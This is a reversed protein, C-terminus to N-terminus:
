TASAKTAHSVRWGSVAAVLVLVYALAGLLLYWPRDRLLWQFRSPFSVTNAGIAIQEVPGSITFAVGSDTLRLKDVVAQRLGSLGLPTAELVTDRGDFRVKASLVTSEPLPGADNYGRRILQLSDVTLRPMRLVASQLLQLEIRLVADSTVLGLTSGDDYDHVEPEEGFRSLTIRNVLGTYFTKGGGTNLWVVYEGRGADRPHDLAVQSGKPLTWSQLSIWSDDDAVASVQAEQDPGPREPFASGPPILHRFDSASFSRLRPLDSFLERESALTFRAGSAEIDSSVFASSVPTAMLFGLLPVPALMWSYIARKQWRRRALAKELRRDLDPGLYEMGPIEAHSGASASPVQFLAGDRSRMHLVPIWWEISDSQELKMAVRASTVAADLPLGNALGLYLVRALTIAAADGIPSQMAVVGGMGAGVLADATSSAASTSGVAGKCSNLVALTVDGEERLLLALDEATLPDPGGNADELLIYGGGAAPDYDGHGIFHFAHWGGKMEAQLQQRTGGELWKLEVKGAKRAAELATEVVGREKQVDLKPLSPSDPNAILGLIRLPPEILLPEIPQALRPHRVIPTRSSLGLYGVKKTATDYLLEWHERTLERPGILLKLRLGKRRERTLTISDRYLECVEGSVFADFLSEGFTRLESEKELWGAAPSWRVTEPATSEGAPSEVVTVQYEGGAGEITLRFDEYDVQRLAAANDPPTGPEAAHNLLTSDPARFSPMM